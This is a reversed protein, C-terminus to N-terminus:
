FLSGQRRYKTWDCRSEDEKILREVGEIGNLSAYSEMWMYYTSTSLPIHRRKMEQLLPPVKEPRNLRMYLSMLNNFPFDSSLFNLEGMKKFMASAKDEMVEKCYCKLLAEYTLRDKATPPLINFYEEAALIGKTKSILDLRLAHDFSSYNIKRKEMWEMIQM